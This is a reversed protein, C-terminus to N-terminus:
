AYAKRRRRRPRKQTQRRLVYVGGGIAAFLGAIGLATKWPFKKEGQAAAWYMLLARASRRVSAMEVGSWIVARLGREEVQARTLRTLPAASAILVEVAENFLAAEDSNWDQIYFGDAEFMEIQFNNLPDNALDLIGRAGQTPPSLQIVTTEVVRRAAAPSMTQGLPQGLGLPQIPQIALM